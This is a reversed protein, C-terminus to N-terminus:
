VKKKKVLEIETPGSDEWKVEPFLNSDLRIKVDNFDTRTWLFDGKVPPYEYLFLDGRKDRAVCLKM